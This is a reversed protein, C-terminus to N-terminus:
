HERVRIKENEGVLVCRDAAAALENRCAAAVARDVDGVNQGVAVNEVAFVVCLHTAHTQTHTDTHRHTQTDTHRHTDTHTHTNRHVLPFSLFFLLSPLTHALSVLRQMLASKQKKRNREPLRNGADREHRECVVDDAAGAVLRNPTGRREKV